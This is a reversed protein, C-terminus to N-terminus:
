SEGDVWPERDGRVPPHAMAQWEGCWDTPAVPPWATSWPENDLPGRRPMRPPYRHCHWERDAM